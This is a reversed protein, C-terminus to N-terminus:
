LSNIRGRWESPGLYLSREQHYSRAPPIICAMHCSIVLELKYTSGSRRKKETLWWSKIMPRGRIGKDSGTVEWSGVQWSGLWMTEMSRLIHFPNECKTQSSAVRISGWCNTIDKIVEFSLIELTDCTWLKWVRSVASSWLASVSLFASATRCHGRCAHM